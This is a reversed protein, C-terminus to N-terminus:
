EKKELGDFLTIMRLFEEPHFGRDQMRRRYRLGGASGSYGDGDKTIEIGFGRGSLSHEMRREGRASVEEPDDEDSHGLLELGENLVANGVVADHVQFGFRFLLGLSVFVIALIYSSEVTLSAFLRKKWLCSAKGEVFEEERIMDDYDNKGREVPGAIRHLGSYVSRDNEGRAM